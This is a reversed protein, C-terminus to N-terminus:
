KPLFFRKQKDMHFLVVAVEELKFSFVLDFSHLILGVGSRSILPQVKRPHYNFNPLKRTTLYVHWCVGKKMSDLLSTCHRQM